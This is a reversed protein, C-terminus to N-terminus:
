LRQRSLTAKPVAATKVLLQFEREGAPTFRVVRSNKQRKAWGLHQFRSLLAAGLAGALHYRRESWDMCPRCFTRRQQAAAETDIGLSGFWKVGSPTLRLDQDASDLLRQNLLSEYALVGLEGASTTL